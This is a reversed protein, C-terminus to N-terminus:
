KKYGDKRQEAYELARYDKCEKSLASGFHGAYDKYIICDCGEKTCIVYEGNSRGENDFMTCLDDFSHGLEQAKSILDIM